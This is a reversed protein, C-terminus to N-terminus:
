GPQWAGRLKRNGIAVAINNSSYYQVNLTDERQELNSRAAKSVLHLTKEGGVKKTLVDM